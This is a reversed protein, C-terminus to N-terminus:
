DKGPMTSKVNTRAKDITLGGDIIIAQGTVFESEESALWLAADAIHKALGVIPLPQGARFADELSRPDISSDRLPSDFSAPTLMRGPCVCNVRIRYPALELAVSRTMGVIAAKTASYAVLGEAGIFAAISSTNIISGGRSMLHPAVLKIARWTAKVNVSMLRDYVDEDSDTISGEFGGIGANNYLVDLHGHLELATNIVNSLAIADTVDAPVFTAAEGLRDAIAAGDHEDGTTRRTHHFRTAVPGIKATLEGGFNPPLDCFVVKAGEEIFLEVSALGIGSSGGTVIAVKGELRGSKDKM